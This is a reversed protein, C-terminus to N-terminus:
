KTPELMLLHSGSEEDKYTVVLLLRNQDWTLGCIIADDIEPGIKQHRFKSGTYSVSVLWSKKINPMLGPLQLMSIDSATAIIELQGDGNIDACIPAVEVPVTRFMRSSTNTPNVDYAFLALSGGMNGSVEYPSKGKRAIYLTRSKIWVPTPWETGGLRCVAGSIVPFGLPLSMETKASTVGDGSPRYQWIRTGFTIDRDLDQGLLTEPRGDGDLDFSGVMNAIQSQVIQPQDQILRYLTTELRKAPNIDGSVNEDKQMTIALYLPGKAEPQWWHLGVLQGMILDPSRAIVKPTTSIDLIQWSGGDSSALLLRNEYRAFVAIHSRVPLKGLDKYDATVSATSPVAPPQAPTQVSSPTATGVPAPVGSKAPAMRQVEGPYGAASYVRLPQQDLGLVKLGQSNWVFSLQAADAPVTHAGSTKRYGIWRLQSLSDRLTMFLQEGTGTEDIFVAALGEFRRVETGTPLAGTGSIRRVQSFRPQVWIVQLLGTIQQITGLKEGTQPHVVTKGPSVVTFIDGEHVGLDRGADILWGDGEKGIVIAKLPKFDNEVATPLSDAWGIWPIALTLMVVMVLRPLKM